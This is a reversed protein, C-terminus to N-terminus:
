RAPIAPSCLLGSYRCLCLCAQLHCGNFSFRLPQCISCAPCHMTIGTHLYGSTDFLCGIMPVMCRRTRPVYNSTGFLPVQAQLLYMELLLSRVIPCQWLVFPPGVATRCFHWWVAFLRWTEISVIVGAGFLRQSQVLM